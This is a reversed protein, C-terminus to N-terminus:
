EEEVEVSDVNLFVNLVKGCHPCNGTKCSSGLGNGSVEILEFVDDVGMPKGCCPFLSQRM